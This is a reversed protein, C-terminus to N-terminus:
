EHNGRNNSLRGKVFQVGARKLFARRGIGALDVYVLGVNRATEAMLMSSHGADPGYRYVFYVINLSNLCHPLICSYAYKHGVVTRV